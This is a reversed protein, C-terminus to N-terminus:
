SELLKNCNCGAKLKLSPMNGWILPLSLSALISASALLFSYFPSNLFQFVCGHGLGHSNFCKGTAQLRYTSSTLLLLTALLTFRISLRKEGWRM